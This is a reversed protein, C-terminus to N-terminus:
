THLSCCLHEVLLWCGHKCPGKWRGVMYALCRYGPTLFCAIWHLSPLTQKCRIVSILAQAVIFSMQIAMNYPKVAQFYYKFISTDSFLKVEPGDDGANSKAARAKGTEKAEPPVDEEDDDRAHDSVDLSQVYGGMARLDTFKGQEIVQGDSALAVIYDSEPM